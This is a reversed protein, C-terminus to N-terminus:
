RKGPKPHKFHGKAKGPPRKPGGPGTAGNCVVSDLGDVLWGGGQRVVTAQASCRDVHDTHQAVSSFAVTASGGSQATVTMSPFAISRLTRFTGAFADFSKFQRHLNDTGLAWAGNLDQSAARTYLATVAGTPSSPAGGPPPSAPPSTSAPPAPAASAPPAKKAAHHRRAAAAPSHQVHGARKAGDGSSGGILVLALVVAAVGLGAAPLLWPRRRAPGAVRRAPLAPAPRPPPAPAPRSPAAAAAVGLARTPGTPPRDLAADAYAAALARVLEGASGPREAPDKALGRKLVQAARVPAGPVAEALDPPPQTVVRRAVEVATRGTFAKRGSLMEFAVAALAYVDAPPGGADGDLREPAMYAATGMVVGSGTINTREAATAIGLDTLKV